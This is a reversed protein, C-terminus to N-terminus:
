LWTARTISVAATTPAGPSTIDTFSAEYAKNGVMTTGSVLTTSATTLAADGAVTATILTATDTGLAVSTSNNKITVRLGNLDSKVTSIYYDSNASLLNNTSTTWLVGSNTATIGIAPFASTNVGYDINSTNTILRQVELVNYALASAAVNYKVGSVVTGSLTAAIVDMLEDYDSAADFEATATATGLSLYLTGSVSAVTANNALLTGSSNSRNIRQYSIANADKAATVTVGTGFNYANIAAAVADITTYNDVAGASTLGFTVASNGSAIISVKEGAAIPKYSLTNANVGPAWVISRTERVTPTTDAIEAVTKLVIHYPSATDSTWAGYDTKANTTSYYSDLTDFRVYDNGTRAAALPLFTKLDGLGSETVFTGTGASTSTAATAQTASSAVLANGSITVAGAVTATTPLAKLADFSLSALVPNGTITLTGVNNVKDAKLSAM